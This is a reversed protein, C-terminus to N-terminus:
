APHSSQVPVQMGGVAGPQQSVVQNGQLLQHEAEKDMQIINCWPCCFAKALDVVFDGQLGFRRNMESRQLVAMILNGM